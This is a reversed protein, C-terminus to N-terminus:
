SLEDTDLDSDLDVMSVDVDVDMDLNMDRDETDNKLDKRGELEKSLVSDMQVEDKVTAGQITRIGERGEKAEKVKKTEKDEKTNDELDLSHDEMIIAKQERTLPLNEVKYDPLYLWIPGKMTQQYVNLKGWRVMELVSLIYVVLEYRSAFRNYFGQFLAFKVKALLESLENIKEDISVKHLKAEVRVAKKEPLTKLLYEYLVVLSAVEHSLPLSSDEYFPALRKWEYNSHIAQYSSFKQEFVAAVNKIQEYEILRQQLNKLPDEEDEERSKEDGPLLLRSKIEILHAAMEMFDSADKLDRFDLLRLYNLYEQTLVFIDINFIDIENTRILYLLLDLPGEFHKLKILYTM